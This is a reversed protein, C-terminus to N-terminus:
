SAFSGLGLNSEAKLNRRDLVMRLQVMLNEKLFDEQLYVCNMNFSAM